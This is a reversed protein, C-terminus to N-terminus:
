QFESSFSYEPNIEKLFSQNSRRATWTVKLFSRWCQLKFTDIAQTETKKITWSEYKYMVVPLVVATVICFKTPLTVDRIKLKSDLNTMTKRRVRLRRLLIHNKIEHNYDGNVTVKSDLVTFGTMVKVKEGEIQTDLDNFGKKYLEETYEKWRKQKMLDKCNKDKKMVMRAHFIGKINGIKKFLDRTKGRRDNEEIEKCQEKFFAKKDRVAIRQFEANLQTYRKMEGKNELKRIEEIIQLAEESLWKTKKCKKKKPINKRQRRHLTM